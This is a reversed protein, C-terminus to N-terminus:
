GKVGGFGPTLIAPVEIVRRCKSVAALVSLPEDSM